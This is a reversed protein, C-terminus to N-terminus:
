SELYAKKLTDGRLGQRLAELALVEEPPINGLNVNPGFRLILYRQQNKQPAEWILYNIDKIGSIINNIEDEKIKGENDYIGVGKGAERAEVIVKFAGSELDNFIVNQMLSVPIKESPDKKGVESVVKFGEDIARKIIEKRKDLDMKITGDSVEIMTFGLERARELFRDYVNKWVAVELFTGGPMVDIGAETILKNKEKLLEKEYFASTGFTLKIIDIYDGATLILDKIENLGLGKDIVMTIGNERPKKTRGKIPPEIINEWAKM